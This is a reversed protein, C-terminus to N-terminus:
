DVRWCRLRCFPCRSHCNRFSLKTHFIGLRSYGHFVHGTSYFNLHFTTTLDSDKNYDNCSALWCPGFTESASELRESEYSTTYTDNAKRSNVTELVHPFNNINNSQNQTM